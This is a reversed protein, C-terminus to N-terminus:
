LFECYIGNFNEGIISSTDNYKVFYINHGNDLEILQSSPYWTGPEVSLIKRIFDEIESSEQYIYCFRSKAVCVQISSIFINIDNTSFIYKYMSNQKVLCEELLETFKIM